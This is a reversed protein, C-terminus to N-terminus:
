RHFTVRSFWRRMAAVGKRLYPRPAMNRTGFELALSYPAKVIVMAWGLTGSMWDISRQLNGTRYHPSEGPLSAPPHQTAIELKIATALRRAREELLPQTRKMALKRIQPGRWNEIRVLKSM